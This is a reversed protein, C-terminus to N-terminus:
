RKPQSKKYNDVIKAEDDSWEDVPKELIAQVDRPNAVSATEKPTTSAVPFQKPQIASPTLGEVLSDIYDEIDIKASEVDSTTEKVFGRVNALIAKKVPEPVEPHEELKGKAFDTLQYKADKMLLDQVFPHSMIAAMDNEDYQGLTKQKEYEALKRQAEKFGKNVELFREYPVTRSAPKMEPIAGTKNEEQPQPVTTETEVPAEPAVETVEPASVNDNVDSM